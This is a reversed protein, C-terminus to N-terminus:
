SLKANVGRQDSRLWACSRSLGRQAAAHSVRSGGPAALGCWHSQRTRQARGIASLCSSVTTMDSSESLWFIRVPAPPQVSSSPRPTASTTRIAAEAARQWIRCADRYEAALYTALSRDDTTIVCSSAIFSRVRIGRPVMFEAVAAEWMGAHSDGFLAIRKRLENEPAGFECPALAPDGLTNQRYDGNPLQNIQTDWTRYRSIAPRWFILM